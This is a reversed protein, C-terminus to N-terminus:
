ENEKKPEANTKPQVDKRYQTVWEPEDVGFIRELFAFLKDLLASM